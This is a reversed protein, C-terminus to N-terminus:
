ERVKDGNPEKGKRYEDREKKSKIKKEGSEERGRKKRM